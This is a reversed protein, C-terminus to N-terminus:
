AWRGPGSSNLPLSDHLRASAMANEIPMRGHVPAKSTIMKAAVCPIIQAPMRAVNAIANPVAKVTDANAATDTPERLRAIMRAPASLRHPSKTARLALTTLEAATKTSPVTKKKADNWSTRGNQFAVFERRTPSGYRHFDEIIPM